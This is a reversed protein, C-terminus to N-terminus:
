MWKWPVTACSAPPPGRRKRWAWPTSATTSPSARTGHCRACATEARTAREKATIGEHAADKDNRADADGGHCDVCSLGALGHVSTEYVVYYDYLLKNKVKFVSSRHCELCSDALTTGAGSVMTLITLMFVKAGRSM